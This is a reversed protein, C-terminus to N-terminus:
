RKATAPQTLPPCLNEIQPNKNISRRLFWGKFFRPGRLAKFNSQARLPACIKLRHTKM